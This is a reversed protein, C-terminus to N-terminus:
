CFRGRELTTKLKSCDANKKTLCDALMEKTPIWKIAKVEGSKVTQRIGAIDLRMRMDLCQKTSTVQQYLQNSDVYGVIPIVAKTPDDYLIESILQRVYIAASCGDVCGLTEAGFM